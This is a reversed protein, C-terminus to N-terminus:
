LLTGLGRQKRQGRAAGSGGQGSGLLSHHEDDGEKGQGSGNALGKEAADGKGGDLGGMELGSAVPRRERMSGASLAAGGAATVAAENQRDLMHELNVATLDLDKTAHLLFTGSVITIFGCAQTALQRSTQDDQLRPTSPSV